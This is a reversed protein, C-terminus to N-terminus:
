PRRVEPDHLIRGMTLDPSATRHSNAVIGVFTLLIAAAFVYTSILLSPGGAISFVLVGALVAFGVAALIAQKVPTM